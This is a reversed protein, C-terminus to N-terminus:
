RLSVMGEAGLAGRGRWLLGGHGGAVGVAKETVQSGPDTPDTSDIGEVVM